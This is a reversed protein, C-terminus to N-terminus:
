LSPLPNNQTSNPTQDDQVFYPKNRNYKNVKIDGIREQIDQNTGADFNFIDLFQGTGRGANDGDATADPHSVGYQEGEPQFDNRPFLVSRRADAIRSLENNPQSFDLNDNQTAM